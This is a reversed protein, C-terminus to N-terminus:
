IKISTWKGSSFRQYGLVARTAQDLWMAMWAGNLGLGLKTCFIFASLPRLIAVCMMSSFAVFKTDGAGRLAGNMVIRSTQFHTTCAMIIMVMSAMSLVESSNDYLAVLRTGAFLFILSLLSSICFAVRQGTKGYVEAEDIRKKGLSQGVLASTAVSIGDGFAFSIEQISSCAQHTAFATSGFDAVIRMFMFIGIRLCMQEILASSSIKNISSLTQLDFHFGVKHYISLFGDYSFLSFISMFCGVSSGILTAIGAGQIGLTPFVWIGNILLFNLIVNVINAALNTRLSIKTRGAGRQAANITLSVSTFPISLMLPQFYTIALDIYEADAGAFTLVKDAFIFALSSMTIAIMINLMIAQRLCKNAKIQDNEGFRRAVITAVGVNLSSILALVILRPQNTIGVAAIALTGLTGVMMLDVASILFILVSELASPWAIKFLQHYYSFTDKLHSSDQKSSLMYDVSFFRIIYNKM